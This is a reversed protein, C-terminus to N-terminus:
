AGHKKARAEARLRRNTALKVERSCVPSCTKTLGHTLPRKFAANCHQCVRHPDTSYPGPWQGERLPSPDFDIMAVHALAVVCSARGAPWHQATGCRICRARSEGTDLQGDDSWLHELYAGSAVDDDDDDDRM